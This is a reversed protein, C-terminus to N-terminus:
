WPGYVGCVFGCLNNWFFNNHFKNGMYLVTSCITATTFFLDPTYPLYSYKTRNRTYYAPGESLNEISILLSSSLVKSPYSGTVPPINDIHYLSFYHHCEYIITFYNLYCIKLSLLKIAMLCKYLWIVIIKKSHMLGFRNFTFKTSFRHLM